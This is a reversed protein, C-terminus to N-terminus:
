RRGHAFLGRVFPHTDRQSALLTGSHDADYSKFTLPQRNARLKVVYPKSLVFPVDVDKIGHGMFFPTDFGSEPMGMYGEVTASVDAAHWRAPSSGSIRAGEMEREFRVDCLRRRLTVYRGPARSCGTSGSGPISTRAPQRHHVGHVRLDPALARPLGPGLLM